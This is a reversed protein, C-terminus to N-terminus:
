ARRYLGVTSYCCLSQLLSATDRRHRWESAFHIPLRVCEFPGSSVLPGFGAPTVGVLDRTVVMQVATTGGNAQRGHSLTGRVDSADQSTGANQTQILTLM